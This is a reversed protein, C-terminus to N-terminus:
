GCGNAARSKRVRKQLGRTNKNGKDNTVEKPPCMKDAINMIDICDEASITKFFAKLLDEPNKPPVSKGIGIHPSDVAPKKKPRYYPGEKGAVVDGDWMRM